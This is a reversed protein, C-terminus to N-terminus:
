DRGSHALAPELVVIETATPLNDRELELESSGMRRVSEKGKLFDDVGAIPYACGPTKFHMPIVIRPKLQDCVHSAASADITFMGGVPVFLVDVAGIEDVQEPSLVHGLDGLHCCKIDDLGFCFVTNTGRQKGGSADHQTAIGKFQLGKAAKAGSGKLVEPNGQVAAVNNQDDHDHSVLVVDASEQIPAYDIGGGVAYPDTIAKVGDRATVVFCAHGLWKINM